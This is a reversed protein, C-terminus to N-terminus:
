TATIALLRPLKRASKTEDDVDLCDKKGPKTKHGPKHGRKCRFTAVVSQVADM